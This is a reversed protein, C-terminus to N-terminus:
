RSQLVPQTGIGSSHDVHADLMSISTPCVTTPRALALDSIPYNSDTADLFNFPNQNLFELDSCHYTEGTSCADVM